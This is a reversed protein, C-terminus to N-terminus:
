SQDDCNFSAGAEANTSIERHCDGLRRPDTRLTRLMTQEIAAEVTKLSSPKNQKFQTQTAHAEAKM